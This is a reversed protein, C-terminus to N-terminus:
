RSTPFYKTNQFPSIVFLYAPSHVGPLYELLITKKSEREEESPLNYRFRSRWCSRCHWRYGPSYDRVLRTKIAESGRCSGEPLCYVRCSACYGTSEASYVIKSCFRRFVFREQSKLAPLSRNLCKSPSLTM